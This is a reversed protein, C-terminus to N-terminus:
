RDSGVGVPDALLEVPRENRSVGRRRSVITTGDPLEVVVELTWTGIGVGALDLVLFEPTVGPDPGARRTWSTGFLSQGSPRFPVDVARGAGDDVFRVRLDYPLEPEPLDYLEVYLGVHDGPFVDARPLPAIRPDAAGAPRMAPPATETLLLDSIRLDEGEGLGRVAPLRLSAAQRGASDYLEVAVRAAGPGTTGSLRIRGDKVRRRTSSLVEGDSGLVFLGAQLSDGNDSVLAEPVTLSAEIRGRHVGDGRFRAVQAPLLYLRRARTGYWHPFVASLEDLYTRSEPTLTRDGAGAARVFTLDPGRGYDWFETRMAGSAFTRVGQPRGYRLWVAADDGDLGGFRLHAYAARALHEVERENVDTGLVPDLAAFFGVSADGGVQPEPTLAAVSRLGAAVEAGLLDLAQRFDEAAEESRGLRHLALGSLLLAYPHGGTAWAFNRAGNLVDFWLEDDALDLLLAVNAGAHGPFAEVAAELHDVMEAHLGEGEWVPEFHRALVRDLADACVFNRAVLTAVDAPDDGVRGCPVDRLADPALRGLDAFEMWGERLVLAYEHHLEAVLRPSISVPSRRVRELGGEFLTLADARAGQKRRIRALALYPAPNDPDRATAAELAEVARRRWALPNAGPHPEGALLGEVPGLRSEVVAEAEPFARLLLERAEVQVPAPVVLADPGETSLDFDVGDGLVPTATFPGAPPSVAEAPQFVLDFEVWTGVPTGSRTAPSFRLTPAGLLAAEDLERVGSGRALQVNDVEGLSDVWLLMGVTGGVGAEQLRPPYYRRILRTESESDVLEPYTAAATSFAPVEAPTAPGPDVASGPGVAEVRRVMVEDAADAMPALDDLGSPGTPVPVEAVTPAGERLSKLLLELGSILSARAPPVTLGTLLLAALSAALARRAVGTGVPAARHADGHWARRLEAELEPGFSAREPLTLDRLEADLKALDDPLEDLPDLSDDSMM